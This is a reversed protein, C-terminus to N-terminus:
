FSRALRFGLSDARDGPEFRLRNAARLDGPVDDWAGGRFVRLGARDKSACGQEAGGYDKDYGSCTWEWVNGHVDYLGWANAPFQGVEVTKARYEGKSGGAYTYGGDYNAQDTSITAGFYFPTTTGVRTAYEWEAETPLRYKQGTQASLWEAYAVADNWSVYIVPRSGRGWGTDDPKDRGTAEAFRDYEAFTVEYKGMAFPQEIAVRHQRENSYRDEEGEPSGMLFEGAPIVVMESGLSGDKLRDRFEVSIGLAEATQQQLTEVKEASWGHINEVPPLGSKATPSEPAEDAEIKPKSPLGKFTAYATLKEFLLKNQDKQRAFCDLIPTISVSANLRKM